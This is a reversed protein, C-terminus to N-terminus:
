KGFRFQISVSSACAPKAMARARKYEISENLERTCTLLIIKLPCLRPLKWAIKRNRTNRQIVKRANKKAASKSRGFMTTTRIRHSGYVRWNVVNERM